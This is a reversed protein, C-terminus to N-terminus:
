RWSEGFSDATEHSQQDGGLKFDDYGKGNFNGCMGETDGADFKPAEMEVNNGWWYRKVRVVAGSALRVYKYLF